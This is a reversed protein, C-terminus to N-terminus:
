IQDQKDNSNSTDYKTNIASSSETLDFHIKFEYKKIM